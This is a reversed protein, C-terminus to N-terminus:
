RGRGTIRDERPDRPDRPTRRAARRGLAEGRAVIRAYEALNNRIWEQEGPKRRDLRLARSVGDVVIRGTRTNIEVTAEDEPSDDLQVRVVAREPDSRDDLREAGM